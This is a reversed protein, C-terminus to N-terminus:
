PPAPAPPSRPAPASPRSSLSRGRGVPRRPRPLPSLTGGGRTGGTVLTRRADSPRPATLRARLARRCGGAREAPLSRPRGHLGRDRPRQGAVGTGGPVAGHRDGRRRRRARLRLAVRRRGHVDRRRPLRSGGPPARADRPRHSGGRSPRRLARAERRGARDPALLTRNRCEARPLEARLLAVALRAGASPSRRASPAHGGRPLPPDREVRRADRRLPARARAHTRRPQTGSPRADHERRRLHRDPHARVRPRAPRAPAAGQLLQWLWRLRVAEAHRQELPLAGQPTLYLEAPFPLRM